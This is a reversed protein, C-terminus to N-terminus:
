DNKKDHEENVDKLLEDSFKQAAVAIRRSSDPKMRAAKEFTKRLDAVCLDAQLGALPVLVERFMTEAGKFIPLQLWVVTVLLLKHLMDHELWPAIEDAFEMAGRVIAFGVWYMLWKYNADSKANSIAAMSGFVPYILGICIVIFAAMIDPMIFLVILLVMLDFAHVCFSILCVLFWRSQISAGAQEFVPKMLPVVWLDYSLSIGDTLPLQLWILIFFQIEFWYSFYKAIVDAWETAFTFLSFCIWYMLWRTDDTEQPSMLAKLSMFCPFITGVVFVGFRSLVLDGFTHPHFILILISVILYITHAWVNRGGTPKIGQLVYLILIGVVFLCIYIGLWMFSANDSLSGEM